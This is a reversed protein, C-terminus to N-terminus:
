VRERASAGAADPLISGVILKDNFDDVVEVVGDLNYCYSYLLNSIALNYASLLAHINGQKVIRFRGIVDDRFKGFVVKNDWIIQQTSGALAKLRTAATILKPLVTSAAYNQLELTTNFVSVDAENPSTIYDYGADWNSDPFLVKQYSAFIKAATV